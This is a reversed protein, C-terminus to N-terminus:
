DLSMNDISGATYNENSNYRKPRCYYRAHLLFSSISNTYPFTYSVMQTNSTAQAANFLASNATGSFQTLHRSIQNGQNLQSQGIGHQVHGSTLQRGQFQQHGMPHSFQM